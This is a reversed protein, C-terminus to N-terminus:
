PNFCSSIFVQCSPEMLPCGPHSLVILRMLRSYKQGLVWPHIVSYMLPHAVHWCFLFRVCRILVRIDLIGDDILALGNEWM